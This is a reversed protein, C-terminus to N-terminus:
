SITYCLLHPATHLRIGDWQWRSAASGTAWGYLWIAEGHLWTRYRVLIRCVAMIPLGLTQSPSDHALEIVKNLKEIQRIYYKRRGAKTVKARAPSGKHLPVSEWWVQQKRLCNVSSIRVQACQGSRSGSDPENAHQLFHSHSVETRPM